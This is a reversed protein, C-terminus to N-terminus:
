SASVSIKGESLFNHLSVISKRLYKLSFGVVFSIKKKTEGNIPFNNRPTPSLNMKDWLFLLKKHFIIKLNRQPTFKSSRKISRLADNYFFKKVFQHQCINTSFDFYGVFSIWKSESMKWRDPRRTKLITQTSNKSVLSYQSIFM